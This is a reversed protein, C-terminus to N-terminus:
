KTTAVRWPGQGMVSRLGEVARAGARPVINQGVVQNNVVVTGAAQGAMYSAGNPQFYQGMGTDPVLKAAIDGERQNDNMDTIKLGSMESVPAGVAQAALEARRESGKEIDRYLKDNRDTNASRIFPMVIDDESRDHGLRSNLITGCHRCQEPIGDTPKYPFAKRCAHCRIQYGM